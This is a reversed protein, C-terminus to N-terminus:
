GLVLRLIGAASPALGLAGINTRRRSAPHSAPHVSRSSGPRTGAISRCNVTPHSPATYIFRVPPGLRASGMDTRDCTRVASRNCSAGASTFMPERKRSPWPTGRLKFNALFHKSDATSSPSGVAMVESALSSSSNEVRALSRWRATSSKRYATRLPSHDARCKRPRTASSVPSQRWASRQYM